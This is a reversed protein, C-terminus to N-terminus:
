TERSFGTVKGFCSLVERVVKEPTEYPLRTLTVRTKRLDAEYVSFYVGESSLGSLLLRERDARGHSSNSFTIWFNCGPCQQVAVVSTPSVTKFLLSLFRQRTFAAKAWYATPVRCILTRARPIEVAALDAAAQNAFCLDVVSCKGLAQIRKLSEFTDNLTKFLGNFEFTTQEPIKLRVTRQFM